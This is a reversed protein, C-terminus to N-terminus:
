PAGLRELRRRANDVIPRLEPDCEAWLEVFRRYHAAAQARNNHREYIQAQRLYAPALYILDPTISQGQTAYWRLAEDDRQLDRLLEARLFREYARSTTVTWLNASVPAAELLSLADEFHGAARAMEARLTLAAATAAETLGGPGRLRELRQVYRATAVTDLARVSLLGSVYDRLAPHFLNAWEQGGSLPEPWVAVRRRLAIMDEPSHSLFPFAAMLGLQGIHVADVSSPRLITTDAAEANPAPLRAVAPSLLARAARWRGRALELSAVYWRGTAQYGDGRSPDILLTSIALAGVFDEGFTSTRWATALVAEDPSSRLVEIVHRRGEDDGRAMARFWLMEPVDKTSDMALVLSALSDVVRQDRVKAALRVLHVLSERAGPRFRLAREFAPRAEVVSHGLAPGSHFLVEGLQYWAEADDPYQSVAVRYLQVAEAGRGARSAVLARVLRKDHESLRDIFRLANSLAEAPLTPHSAWDAVVSLRYYALAFTTDERVARQLAEVAPGFEGSRFYHEGQLYAKLAALSRTSLAASQALGTTAGGHASVLIQRALSEVVTAIQDQSGTAALEGVRVPPSGQSYVAGTATLRDGVATVEGLVFQGAGLRAALAQAAPPDRLTGNDDPKTLGLTRRDAVRLEGAGDLAVSLLDAVADGLGAGTPGGRTAFPFVMVVDSSAPTIVPRGASGSNVNHIAFALAVVPPFTIAAITVTRWNAIRSLRRDGSASPQGVEGAREGAAAPEDSSVLLGSSSGARLRDVVATVTENAAIGLEEHLLLEHLRYYQLAGERDGHAALATMLGVAVRSNTPDVAALRRWCAVAAELDGEAEATRALSEVAAAFRQALRAREASVYEDFEPADGISVGQLFPGCYLAVARELDGAVVADDFDRADCSVAELNLRLETAGVIPDPSGLDRRLRFLTQRLANRARDVGSDPWFLLLLTDRSIGRQGATALVALLALSRRAAVDHNAAAPPAGHTPRAGQLMLGGLTILRWMRSRISDCVSRACPAVYPQLLRTRRLGVSAGPKQSVTPMEREVAYVSRV